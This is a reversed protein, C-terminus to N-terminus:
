WDVDTTYTLDADFMRGGWADKLSCAVVNTGVHFIDAPTLEGRIEEGESYSVDYEVTLTQYAGDKWDAIFGPVSGGDVGEQFQWSSDDAFVQIGNIYFHFTNDYKAYLYVGAEGNKIKDYQDQTLEFEARVFLGHNIGDYGVNADLQGPEDHTGWDSDDFDVNNWTPNAAIFNAFGDGGEGMRIYDTVGGETLYDVAEVHYKWPNPDGNEPFGVLTIDEEEDDDDGAVPPQSDEATTSTSPATTSANATTTTNGSKDNGGSCAVLASVSLLMAATIFVSIIKKMKEELDM